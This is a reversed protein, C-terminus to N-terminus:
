QEPRFYVSLGVRWEIYKFGWRYNQNFFKMDGFWSRAAASAFLQDGIELLRAAKDLDQGPGPMAYRQAMWAYAPSILNGLEWGPNFDAGEGKDAYRFTSYGTESETFWMKQGQFPGEHVLASEYQWFLFDEIMAEISPWHTGEFYANPDRGNQEEWEYFEILAHLLLGGMFPKFRPKPDNAQYSNNMWSYFNGESWAIFSELRPKGEELKRGSGAKEAYVNAQIAYAMERSVVQVGGYGDRVYEFVRSYFPEDRLREMEIQTTNGGRSFDEFFGHPFRIYGLTGNWNPRDGLYNRYNVEAGNAYRDWKELEAADGGQASRYDKVQYYVFQGDYYAPGLVDPNALTWEGWYDGWRIMNSEFEELNPPFVPISYRGDKGVYSGSGAIGCANGAVLLTALLGVHSHSRRRIEM